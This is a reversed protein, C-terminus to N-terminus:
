SVRRHVTVISQTQQVTKQKSIQSNEDQNKTKEIIYRKSSAELKKEKQCSRKQHLSSELMKVSKSIWVEDPESNPIRYGIVVAIQGSVKKRRSLGGEENKKKSLSFITYSFAGKQLLHPKEIIFLEAPIKVVSRSVIRVIKM